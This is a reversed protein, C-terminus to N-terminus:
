ANKDGTRRIHCAPTGMVLSEPDVNKPFFVLVGTVKGNITMILLEAFCEVVDNNVLNIKAAM